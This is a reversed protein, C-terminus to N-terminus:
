GIVDHQDKTKYMIMTLRGVVVSTIIAVIKLHVFTTVKCFLYVSSAATSITLLFSNAAAFTEM